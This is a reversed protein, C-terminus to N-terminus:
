RVYVMKGGYTKGNYIIVYQYLGNQVYDGSDNKGDWSATLDGEFQPTNLITRIQRGSIDSIYIALPNSAPIKFKIHFEDNFPNPFGSQLTLEEERIPIVTKTDTLSSEFVGNGHTAVVIKGDSSRLDIMTVVANGISEAGEQQWLSANEVLRDTSYLGVSTGVLYKYNNNTLAVIEVWRMSPGNGSGDSNEELNGGVDVFDQGGNESFFLSPTNYNSYSILVRAANDPDVCISSVYGENSFVLETQPDPSNAETIKYVNGFSTGYYLIHAPNTSIDLATIDQPQSIPTIVNWNTSTSVQKFMRIQTLNDNRWIASDGALYMRNYNNPDLVFPTIFLYNSREIGKPDVKAWTSISGNSEYSLKFISAEQFSAYWYLGSPTTACYGGDGGLVSNWDANADNQFKLFSGNDQLGGIIENRGEDKALSVTYFQSTVYGNNLSVWSVSEALNNATKHIGGDNASLMNNAESLFVIEHQDPHHNAYLQNVDELDYGGIQSVNELTAFGDVSRYLNTGGIFVVDPDDPHVKIMMNYSDQSDFAEFASNEDPIQNSRNSWIGDQYKWLQLRSGEVLFYLVNENSPAYAMVLRDSLKIFGPPTINNWNEGDESYFLGKNGGSFGNGTSTSLYAYMKGTPTILINTYFSANSNNLDGSTDDLLNPEGLLSEWNAGGDKSRVINGYIAAYIEDEAFDAKPNTALNWVYNFPSDFSAPQDTSTSPLHDWSEGGDNSKFIGDGRYPAGSARASNGVLEGTGYYWTDRKGIRRDQVLSTVSTIASLQTTRSWNLGANTSRWMGGSAGGALIIAEDRVDIALARTRGGVNVPGALSWTLSQRRLNSSHSPAIKKSFALAKGHIGTPITNTKPDVLLRKEYEFRALPNEKTGIATPGNPLAPIHDSHEVNTCSILFLWFFLNTVLILQKM